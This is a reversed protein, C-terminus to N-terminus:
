IVSGAWKTKNKEAIKKGIKKAEELNDDGAPDKDPGTNHTLNPDSGIPVINNKALLQMHEKIHASRTSEPEEEEAQLYDMALAALKEDINKNVVSRPSDKTAEAKVTAVVDHVKSERVQDRLSAIVDSNKKESVKYEAVLENLRTVEAKSENLESTVSSEYSAIMNKVTDAEIGFRKSLNAFIDMTYLKKENNFQEDSKVVKLLKSLNKTISFDKFKNEGEGRYILPTSSAIAASHLGAMSEKALEEWQNQNVDVIQSPVEPYQDIIEDALGEAIMEEPTFHHDKGDNLWMDMIQDPSKGVKQAYLKSLITADGALSAELDEILEKIEGLAKRNYHGWLDMGVMPDHIIMKSTESVYLKDFTMAIASMMSAAIGDIYGITNYQSSVRRIATLLAYGEYVLGGPSHMYFELTHVDSGIENLDKILSDVNIDLGITGYLWYSRKGSGNSAVYGLPSDVKKIVKM